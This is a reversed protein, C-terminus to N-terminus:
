ETLSLLKTRLNDRKGYIGLKKRIKQRHTRVTTLSINLIEMIDKDQKGDRILDAIQIERSTFLLYRSSLKLSFSSIIRKINSELIDLYALEKSMSRNKKLKQINPLILHKINSILNEEVERKDNDRKRLLVELASNMKELEKTRDKVKTELDEHSKQLVKEILKRETNDRVVEIGAIIEGRPAKIPSATIDVYLTGKDTPATREKTHIKGDKFTEVLPCGTCIKEKKEYARYCYEGVHEGIMNQHIKNQYLIKFNTNQISIGNGIAEFIGKEILEKIIQEKYDM